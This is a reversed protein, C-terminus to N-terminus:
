TRNVNLKHLVIRRRGEESRKRRKLQSDDDSGEDSDDDSDNKEDEFYETSPWSTRLKLASCSGSISDDKPHPRRIRGAMSSSGCTVILM